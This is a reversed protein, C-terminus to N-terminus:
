SNRFSNNLQSTNYLHIYDMSYLMSVLFSLIFLSFSLGVISGFCCMLYLCYMLLHKIELKIILMYELRFCFCMLCIMCFYCWPHGKGVIAISLSCWCFSLWGMICCSNMINLNMYILLLIISYLM